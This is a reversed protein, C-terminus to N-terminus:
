WASIIIDYIDIKKWLVKILYWVEKCLKLLPSACSSPTAGQLHSGLRSQATSLLGARPKHEHPAACGPSVPVPAAAPGAAAGPSSPAPRSPAAEGSSRPARHSSLFFKLHAMAQLYQVKGPQCGPGPACGPLASHPGPPSCIHVFYIVGRLAGQAGSRGRLRCRGGRRPRGLAAPLRTQKRNNFSPFPFFFFFFRLTFM